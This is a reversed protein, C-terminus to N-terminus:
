IFNGPCEPHTYASAAASFELGLTDVPEYDDSAKCTPSTEESYNWMGKMSQTWPLTCNMNEADEILQTRLCDLYILDLYFWNDKKCCM